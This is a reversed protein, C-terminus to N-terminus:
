RVTLVPCPATAVVRSAVSGTFLKSLGTRGHTGVILLGMGNERAFSVLEEAANGPLLVGRAKLGADKATALIVDLQKQATTRLGREMEEATFRSDALAASSPPEYVHVIVLEAGEKRAMEMAKRFAADSAPSFDTGFLIPKTQIAAAPPAPPTAFQTSTM